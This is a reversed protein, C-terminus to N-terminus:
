GFWNITDALTSFIDVLWRDREPYSEPDCALDPDGVVSWPREYHHCKLIDNNSRNCGTNGRSRREPELTCARTQYDNWSKIQVTWRQNTVTPWCCGPCTKSSASTPSELLQNQGIITHGSSTISLDKKEIADLLPSQPSQGGTSCM